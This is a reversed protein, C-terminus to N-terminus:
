LYIFCLNHAVISIPQDLLNLGATLRATDPGPLPTLSQTRAAAPLGTKVLCALVSQMYEISSIRGGLRAYGNGGSDAAHQQHSGRLNVPNLSKNNWKNLDKEIPKNTCQLFQVQRMQESISYQTVAITATKTLGTRTLSDQFLYITKNTYYKMNIECMFNLYNLRFINTGNM